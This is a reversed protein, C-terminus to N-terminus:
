KMNGSSIWKRSVQLHPSKPVLLAIQQRPEDKWPRTALASNVRQHTKSVSEPNYKNKKRCFMSFLVVGPDRSSSVAVFANLSSLFTIIIKLLWKSSTSSSTRRPPLLWM